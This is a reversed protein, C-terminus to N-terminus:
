QTHDAEAYGELLEAKLKLTFSNLGEGGLADIVEGELAFRIAQDEESWYAGDALAPETVKAARDGEVELAATTRSSVAAAPDSSRSGRLGARELQGDAGLLLAGPAEQRIQETPTSLTAWGAYIAVAVLASGAGWVKGNMMEAVRKGDGAAVELDGSAELTWNPGRLAVPASVNLHAAGSLGSLGHASQVTLESEPSLTIRGGPGPLEITALGEGSSLRGPASQVPSAVPHDNWRASVEAVVRVRDRGLVSAAVAVAAVAAAAAVIQRWRSSGSRTQVAAMVAAEVDLTPTEAARLAAFARGLQDLDAVLQTCEPCQEAHARASPPVGDALWAEWQEPDPARPCREDSM